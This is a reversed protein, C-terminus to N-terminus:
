QNCEKLNDIIEMSPTSLFTQLSGNIFYDIALNDYTESTNVPLTHPTKLRASIYSCGWFSKHM